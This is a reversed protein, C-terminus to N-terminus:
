KKQQSVGRVGVSRFHFGLQIREHLRVRLGEFTRSSGTAQSNQSKNPHLSTESFCQLSLVFSVIRGCIKITNTVNVHLQNGSIELRKQTHTRALVNTVDFQEAGPAVMTSIELNIWWDSQTM